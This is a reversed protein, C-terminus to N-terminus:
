SHSGNATEKQLIEKIEKQFESILACEFMEKYIDLVEHETKPNQLYFDINKDRIEELKPPMSLESM